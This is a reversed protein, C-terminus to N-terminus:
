RPMTGFLKLAWCGRATHLPAGANVDVATAPGRHAQVWPLVDADSFDEECLQMMEPLSGPTSPVEIRLRALSGDSHAAILFVRGNIEASALCLPEAGTRFSALTSFNATDVVDNGGYKVILDGIGLQYDQFPFPDVSRLPQHICTGLYTPRSRAVM